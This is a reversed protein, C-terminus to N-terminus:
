LGGGGEGVGVEPKTFGTIGKSRQLLTSHCRVKKLWNLFQCFQNPGPRLFILLFMLKEATEAKLVILSSVLPKSFM